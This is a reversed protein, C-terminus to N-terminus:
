FVKNNYGANGVPSGPLPSYFNNIDVQAESVSNFQKDNEQTVIADNMKRIYKGPTDNQLSCAIYVNNNLIVQTNYYKGNAQVAFSFCNAITNNSIHITAADTLGYIGMGSSQGNVFLNNCVIHSANNENSGHFQFIEGYGDHVYNDHVYTNTTNGGILLGMCQGFQKETGFNAIENNYIELQDISSTQIGEYGQNHMENNYIKVNKWMIPRVYTHSPNTPHAGANYGKGNEDWGWYISSHGIYMAEGKTNSISIDHIFLNELQSNPYWTTPDDKVPDTKATIGVGGNTIILNKVEANDTFPRLNIGFYASQANWQQSGEVKFNSSNDESGLTIYHCDILQIASSYAGNRWSPDGITLKEGPYNTIRIPNQADGNLGVIRVSLFNGRLFIIDGPKIDKTQPLNMDLRGRSDPYIQHTNTLNVEIDENKVEINYVQNRKLEPITKSITVPINKNHGYMVATVPTDSEYLNTIGSTFGSIPSTFYITLDQKNDSSLIKEEKFLRTDLSVEKIEISDIQIDANSRIDINIQSVSHFLKVTNNTNMPNAITEGSYFDIAEWPDNNNETRLNLFSTRSTKGEELTLLSEPLDFNALFYLQSMAPVKVAIHNDSDITLNRIEKYFTDNVFVYCNVHELKAETELNETELRLSVNIDEKSYSNDPTDKLCSCLFIMIFIPLCLKKM